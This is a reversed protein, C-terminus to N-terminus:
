FGVSFSFRDGYYTIGGGVPRYVRVSERYVPPYYAPGPRYTRYRYGYDFRPPPPAPRFAPPPAPRFAPPPAPRYGRPPGPRYGPGAGPGHGGPGPPQAFVPAAFLAFLVCIPLVFRKM